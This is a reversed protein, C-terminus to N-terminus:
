GIAEARGVSSLGSRRVRWGAPAPGHKIASSSASRPNSAPRWAACRSRLSRVSIAGAGSCGCAALEADRLQERCLNRVVMGAGFHFFADDDSIPLGRALLERLKAVLDDPLNASVHQEVDKRVPEPVEKWQKKSSADPDRPKKLNPPKM